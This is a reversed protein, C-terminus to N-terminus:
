YVSSHEGDGNQIKWVLFAAYINEIQYVDASFVKCSKNNQSRKSNLTNNNV